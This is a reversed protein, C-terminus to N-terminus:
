QSVLTGTMFSHIKCHFPYTGPKPATFSTSSGSDIDGTDFSNDKATMTHTTNDDNSVKVKSGAKVTVSSPSFKLNKISLTSGSSPTKTAGTTSSDGGSYGGSSGSSCSGSSGCAALAVVAIAVLSVRITSRHMM